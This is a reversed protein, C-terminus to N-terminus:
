GHQGSKLVNNQLQLELNICHAELKSFDKQFQAITKKLCINESKLSQNSLETIQNDTLKAPLLRINQCQEVDQNVRGENNFEPQEIHQQGTAFVNNDATLQVEAMPEEDYIPKINADDVDADNVSKNHTDQKEFKTGSSETIVLSVDFAKCTDVKGEKTQLQRENVMSDYERKHLAREEISKKVSEMHQILTDHFQQVEIRTYELFYNSIMEGDYDSSFRTNIFLHFQTKLVRFAAMSGNEQFAEKNLQRKLQDVNFFMIGTFTQVDQDFLTAFARKYGEETRTAKLDNNSLVKLHSYLLRFFVMCSEKEKDQMQQIAQEESKLCSSLIDKTEM